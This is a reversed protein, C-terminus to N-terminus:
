NVNYFFHIEREANGESLIVRVTFPNNLIRKGHVTKKVHFYEDDAWFQYTANVKSLTKGVRTMTTSSVTKNQKRFDGFDMSFNMVAPYGLLAEKAFVSFNVASGIVISQAYEEYSTDELTQNAERWGTKAPTVYFTLTKNEKPRLTVNQTYNDSESEFRLRFTKEENEFSAITFTVPHTTGVGMIQPLELSKEFYLETFGAKPATFMGLAAAIFVLIAAAFAIKFALGNKKLKSALREM